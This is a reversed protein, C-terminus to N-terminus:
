LAVTACNAYMVHPMLENGWERCLFLFFADAVNRERAESVNPFPEFLTYPCAPRAEAQKNNCVCAIKWM